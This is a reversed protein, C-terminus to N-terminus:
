ETREIIENLKDEHIFVHDDKSVTMTTLHFMRAMSRAQDIKIATQDKVWFKKYMPNEGDYEKWGYVRLKDVIRNPLPKNMPTGVVRGLYLYGHWM